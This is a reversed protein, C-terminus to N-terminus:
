GSQREMDGAVIWDFEDQSIHTPAYDAGNRDLQRVFARLHNRSGRELNSYVWAIDVTDTSRARLDALDLDEITAGVVLADVLSRSGPDVLSRYLSQLERDAFAGAVHDAAPDAIGHRDLLAKVADTHTQEASSINTFVKTGWRDGLALYTDRALLEEERMRLLGAREDPTLDTTPLADLRDALDGESIKTVGDTTKRAAGDGSSCATIALVGVAVLFVAQPFPRRRHRRRPGTVPQVDPDGVM